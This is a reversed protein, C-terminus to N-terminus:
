EAEGDVETKSVDRAVSATVVAVPPLSGLM